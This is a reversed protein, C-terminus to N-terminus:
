PYLAPNHIRIDRTRSGDGVGSGEIEGSSKRCKTARRIEDSIDGSGANDCRTSKADASRRKRGAHEETAALERGLQVPQIQDVLV